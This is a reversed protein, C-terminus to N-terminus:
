IRRPENRQQDSTHTQASTCGSGAFHTPCRARPIVPRESRLMRVSVAAITRSYLTRGAGCWPDRREGPMPPPNPAGDNRGPADEAAATSAPVGARRGSATTGKGSTGPSAAAVAAYAAWDVDGTGGGGGSATPSSPVPAAPTAGVTSLISHAASIFSTCRRFHQRKTTRACVRFRVKKNPCARKDLPPMSTTSIWSGDHAITATPRPRAVHHAPPFMIERGNKMKPESRRLTGSPNGKRGLSVKPDNM